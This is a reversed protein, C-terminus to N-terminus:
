CRDAKVEIGFERTLRYPAGGSFEVTNCAYYFGPPTSADVLIRVGNCNAFTAATVRDVISQDVVETVSTLGTSLTWTSTSITQGSQIVGAWSLYYFEEDGAHLPDDFFVVKKGTHVLAM